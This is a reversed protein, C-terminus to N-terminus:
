WGGDGSGEPRGPSTIEDRTLRNVSSGNVLAGTAPTVDRWTRYREVSARPWGM